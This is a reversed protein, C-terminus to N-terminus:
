SVTRKPSDPWVQVEQSVQLWACPEVHGWHWGALRMAGNPFDPPGPPSQVEARSLVISACQFCQTQFRM